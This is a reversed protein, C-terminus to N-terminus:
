QWIDVDQGQERLHDAYAEIFRQFSPQELYAETLVYELVSRMHFVKLMGEKRIVERGSREFLLMAPLYSIALQDAWLRATTRTGDPRIVPTSAFRDLQVVEVRKLRDRVEPHALVTSHFHQCEQCDVSEFLVALPMASQIAESRQLAYPPASFFPEGIMLRKQDRGPWQQFQYDAYSLDGDPHHELYDLIQSFKKISRYGNLRFVQNGQLGLFLLTPTFQVAMAEAYSKETYSKGDMGLVERDGWMNLAILDYGKRIRAAIKQDKFNEEILKACYPCGNQYFYIVVRRGQAAADSVDEGLELFTDSFWAPHEVERAGLFAGPTVALTSGAIMMCAIVRLFFILSTRM